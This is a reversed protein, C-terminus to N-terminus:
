EDAGLTAQYRGIVDPFERELPRELRDAERNNRHWLYGETLTVLVALAILVGTSGEGM